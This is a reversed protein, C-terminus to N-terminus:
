TGDESTINVEGARDLPRWLRVISSKFVPLKVKWKKRTNPPLTLPALLEAIPPLTLLELCLLLLKVLLVAVVVATLELPLPVVFSLLPCHEEM